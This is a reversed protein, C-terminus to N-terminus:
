KREPNNQTSRQVKKAKLTKQSMQTKVDERVAYLFLPM